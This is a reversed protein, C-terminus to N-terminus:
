KSKNMRDLRKVIETVAENFDDYGGISTLESDYSTNTDKRNVYINVEDWMQINIDYIDRYKNLREIPTDKSEGSQNPPAVSKCILDWVGKHIEYRKDPNDEKVMDILIQNLLSIAGEKEATQEYTFDKAEM